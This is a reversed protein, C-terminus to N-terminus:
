DFSGLQTMYLKRPYIPQKLDIDHTQLWELCADMESDHKMDMAKDTYSPFNRDIASLARAAARRPGDSPPLICGGYYRERIDNKMIYIIKDIVKQQKSLACIYFACRLDFHELKINDLYTCLKTIAEENGDFALCATAMLPIRQSIHNGDPVLKVSLEMLKPHMKRREVEPLLFYHWFKLKGSNLLHVVYILFDASLNEESLQHIFVQRTYYVASSDDSERASLTGNKIIFDMIMHNIAVPMKKQATIINHVCQSFVWPDKLLPMINKMDSSENIKKIMNNIENNCIKEIETKEQNSGQFRGIAWTDKEIEVPRPHLKLVNETLLTIDFIEDSYVCLMGFVVLVFYMKM